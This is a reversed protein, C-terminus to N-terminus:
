RIPVLTVYAWPCCDACGDGYESAGILVERVSTPFAAPAQYQGCDDITGLEATGGEVGGVYWHAGCHRGGAHWDGYTAEFHVIDGALVVGAQNREEVIRMEPDPCVPCATVFPLLALLALSPAGPRM